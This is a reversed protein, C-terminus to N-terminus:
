DHNWSSKITNQVKLRLNQMFTYGILNGGLKSEVYGSRKLSTCHKIKKKKEKLRLNQM